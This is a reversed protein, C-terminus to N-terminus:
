KGSPFAEIALSNTLFNIGSATGPEVM